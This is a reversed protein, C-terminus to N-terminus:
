KKLIQDCQPINCFLSFIKNPNDTSFQFASHFDFHAHFPFLSREKFVLKKKYCKAM